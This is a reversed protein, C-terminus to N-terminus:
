LSTVTSFTTIIWLSLQQIKLNSETSTIDDNVDFCVLHVSLKESSRVRKELIRMALLSSDASDRDGNEREGRWRGLVFEFDALLHGVQNVCWHQEHLIQTCNSIACFDQINQRSTCWLLEFLLQPLAFWWWSLLLSFWFFPVTESAPTWLSM